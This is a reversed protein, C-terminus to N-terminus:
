FNCKNNSNVINTLYQVSLFLLLAFLLGLGNEVIINVLTLIFKIFKDGYQINLLDKFTFGYVLEFILALILIAIIIYRKM